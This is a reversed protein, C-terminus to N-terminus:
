ARQIVNSQGKETAEKRELFPTAKDRKLHPAKEREEPLPLILGWHQKDKGGQRDEARPAPARPCCSLSQSDWREMVGLRIQEGLPM